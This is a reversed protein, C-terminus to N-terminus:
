SYCPTHQMRHLHNRREREDPLCRMPSVGRSHTPVAAAVAGGIGRVGRLTVLVGRQQGSSVRFDLLVPPLLPLIIIKPQREVTKRGDTNVIATM